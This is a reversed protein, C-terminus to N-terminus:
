PEPVVASRDSSHLQEPVRHPLCVVKRRGIRYRTIRGKEEMESLTRSTKVASWELGSVIEGQWTYGDSEDLFRIVREDDPLYQDEPRDGRGSRGEVNVTRKLWSVFSKLASM